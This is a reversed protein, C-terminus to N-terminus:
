AQKAASCSTGDDFPFAQRLKSAARAEGIEELWDAYVNASLPDHSPPRESFLYLGREALWRRLEEVTAPGCHRQNLVEEASLAAVLEAAPRFGAPPNSWTAGSMAAWFPESDFAYLCAVERVRLARWIARRARVGLESQPSM